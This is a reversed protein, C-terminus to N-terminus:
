QLKLLLFESISESALIDDETINPNAIGTKIKPEPRAQNLRLAHFKSRDSLALAECIQMLQSRELRTSVHGRRVQGLWNIHPRGDSLFKGAALAFAEDPLGKKRRGLDFLEGLDKAKLIQRDTISDDPKIRNHDAIREANTAIVDDMTRRMANLELFRSKLNGELFLVDAMKNITTTDLQTIAGRGNVFEHGWPGNAYGMARAFPVEELGIQQLRLGAFEHLTPAAMLQADDVSLDPLRRYTEGFAQYYRTGNIWNLHAAYSEPLAYSQIIIDIMQPTLKENIRNQFLRTCFNPTRGCLQALRGRTIVEDSLGKARSEALTLFEGFTKTQLLTDTGAASRAAIGENDTNSM